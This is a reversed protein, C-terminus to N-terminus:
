TNVKCSFPPNNNRVEYGNDCSILCTTDCQGGGFQKAVNDVDVFETSVDISASSLCQFAAAKAAPSVIASLHLIQAKLVAGTLSVGVISSSNAITLQSFQANGGTANLVAPFQGNAAASGFVNSVVVVGNQASCENLAFLPVLTRVNTVTLSETTHVSLAGLKVSAQQAALLGGRHNRVAGNWWVQCLFQSQAVDIFTTALDGGQDFFGSEIALEASFQSTSANVLQGVRTGQPSEWAVGIDGGAGGIAVVTGVNSYVVDQFLASWSSGVNNNDDSPLFSPLSPPHTQFVSLDSSSLILLLIQLNLCSSAFSIAPMLLCADSAARCFNRNALGGPSQLAIDLVTGCQQFLCGAFTVSAATEGRFCAAHPGHGVLAAHIAM